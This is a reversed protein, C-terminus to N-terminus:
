GCDVDTVINKLLKLESQPVGGISGLQTYKCIMIPIKHVEHTNLHRAFFAKVLILMLHTYATFM